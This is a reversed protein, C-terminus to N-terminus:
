QAGDRNASGAAVHIAVATPLSATTGDDAIVGLMDDATSRLDPTYSVRAMTPTLQEIASITGASPGAIIAFTLPDGDADSGFLLLTVITDQTVSASGAIV